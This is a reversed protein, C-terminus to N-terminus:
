ASSPMRSLPIHSSNLRTSKRDTIANARATAYNAGKGKIRGKETIQLMGDQTYSLETLLTETTNTGNDSFVTYNKSYSFQYNILDVSQSMLSSGYDTASIQFDTNSYFPRISSLSDLGQAFFSNAIQNASAVVTSSSSKDINDLGFSLSHSVEFNNDEGSRFLM